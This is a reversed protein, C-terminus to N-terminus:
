GGSEYTKDACGYFDSKTDKCTGSSILGNDRLFTSYCQRGDSCELNIDDYSKTKNYNRIKSISQADLNITYLPEKDLYINEPNVVTSSTKTAQINRNNTIYKYVYNEDDFWNLGPLRSKGDKAPFPYSLSIVRFKLDVDDKNDGPQFYCKSSGGNDILKYTLNLNTLGSTDTVMQSGDQLKTIINKDTQGLLTGLDSSFEVNNKEKSTDNMASSVYIYRSYKDTSGMTLASLPDYSNVPKTSNIDVNLSGNSGYVGAGTLYYRYNKTSTQLRAGGVVLGSSSSKSSIVGSKTFKYSSGLINLTPAKGTFNYSVTSNTWCERNVDVSISPINQFTYKKMVGNLNDANLVASVDYNVRDYCSTSGTIKSINKVCAASITSDVKGEDNKGILKFSISNRNTGCRNITFECSVNQPTEIESLSVLNVGYLNDSSAITELLKSDTLSANLIQDGRPDGIFDSFKNKFSTENKCVNGVAAKNIGDIKSEVHMGCAYNYFVSTRLGAWYGFYLRDEKKEDDGYKKHYLNYNYKIFQALQKGTGEIIKADQEYMRSTIRWVPEILLYYDKNAYYSPEKNFTGSSSDYCIKLYAELISYYSGSFPTDKVNNVLYERFVDGMTKFDHISGPKSEDGFLNIEYIPQADATNTKGGVKVEPLYSSGTIVNLGDSLNYFSKMKSERNSIYNIDLSTGCYKIAKTIPDKECFFGAVESSIGGHIDIIANTNRDSKQDKGGNHRFEITKAGSVLNFNKDILSVRVAFNSVFTGCSYGPYDPHSETPCPGYQVQTDAGSGSADLDVAGVIPSFLNCTISLIVFVTFLKSLKKKIM